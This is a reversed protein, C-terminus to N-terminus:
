PDSPEPPGNASSRASPPAGRASGGTTQAIRRQPKLLHALFGALWGLAFVIFFVLARPAALSWILFSVETTALNQVFFITAAATVVVLAITRIVSM